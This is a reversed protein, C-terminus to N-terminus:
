PHPKLSVPCDLSDCFPEALHKMRTMNPINNRAPKAEACDLGDAPCFVLVLADGALALTDVALSSVIGAPVL